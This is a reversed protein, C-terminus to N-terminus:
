IITQIKTPQATQYYKQALQAKYPKNSIPSSQKPKQQDYKMTKSTTKLTAMSHITTTGPPQSSCNTFRIRRPWTTAIQVNGSRWNPSSQAIQARIKSQIRFILTSWRIKLKNKLNKTSKQHNLPKFNILFHFPIFCHALM